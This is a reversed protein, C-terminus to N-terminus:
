QVNQTELSDASGHVAQCEGRSWLKIERLLKEQEEERLERKVGNWWKYGKKKVIM